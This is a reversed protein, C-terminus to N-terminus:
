LSMVVGVIFLWDMLPFLTPMPSKDFSEIDIDQPIGRFLASLVTPPRLKQDVITGMRNSHAYQAFWNEKARVRANYDEVQHEYDSTLVYASLVLLIFALLFAVFFRLSLINSLFEKQAINWFM